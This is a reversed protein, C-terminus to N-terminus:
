LNFDVGVFSSVEKLMYHMMLLRHHSEHLSVKTNECFSNMVSIRETVAVYLHSM